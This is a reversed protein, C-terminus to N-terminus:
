TLKKWYPFNLNFTGPAILEFVGNLDTGGDFFANTINTGSGEGLDTNTLTSINITFSVKQFIATDKIFTRLTDAESKLINKVMINGILVNPGNDYTVHGGDATIKTEQNLRMLHFQSGFAPDKTITATGITFSM